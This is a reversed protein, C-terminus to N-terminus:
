RLNLIRVTEPWSYPNEMADLKALIGEAEPNATVQQCGIFLPILLLALVGKSLM